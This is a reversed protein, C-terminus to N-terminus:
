EIIPIHESFHVTLHNPRQPFEVADICVLVAVIYIPPLIKHSGRSLPPRENVSINNHHAHSHILQPTKM